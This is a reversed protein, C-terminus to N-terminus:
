VTKVINTNQNKLTLGFHDFYLKMYLKQEKCTMPVMLRQSYLPIHTSFMLLSLPSAVVLKFKEQHFLEVLFLPPVPPFLKGQLSISLITLLQILLGRAVGM